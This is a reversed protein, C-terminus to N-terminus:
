AEGRLWEEAFHPTQALQNEIIRRLESDVDSLECGDALVFQLAVLQPDDLARGIESVLHVTAERVGDVHLFHEAMRQALVNYVKGVHSQANKGSVAENSAATRAASFLGSFQNGRGVEGSDGSEASTGTVTLYVSDIGGGEKDLANLRLGVESFRGFTEALDDKLASGIQDKREFYHRESEVFRDVFAAAITLDLRDQRRIGMVKVDEGVEPFREKFGSSNLHREVSLVAKETTTLPAYGVAASTDNAPPRQSDFLATLQTSGARVENQFVVHRDPDVFRLKNRFWGRATEVLIEEVPVIRGRSEYIARDGMIFRMPEDVVGGGFAPRSRGAALLAKDLNFHLAAGFMEVYRRTLARAAEEMVADCISDPHGLGKREVIEFPREETTKSLIEYLVGSM